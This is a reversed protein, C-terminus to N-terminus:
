DHGGRRAVSSKNQKVPHEPNVLDPEIWEFIESPKVYSFVLVPIFFM